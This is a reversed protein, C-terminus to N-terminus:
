GLRGDADAPLNGREPDVIYLNGRADEGFSTPLEISGVDTQIQATRDTAIWSTGDFRLTSLQSTTFDAFFYHGNLGDTEGRYM